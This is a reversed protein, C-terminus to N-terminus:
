QIFIPATAMVVSAPDVNISCEFDNDMSASIVGNRFPNVKNKQIVPVHHIGNNNIRM